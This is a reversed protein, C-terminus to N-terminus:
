QLERYVEDYEMSIMENKYSEPGPSALQAKKM